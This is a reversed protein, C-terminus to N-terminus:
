IGSISLCIRIETTLNNESIWFAKATHTLDPEEGLPFPSGGPYPNVMDISDDSQASIVNPFLILLCSLAIKAKMM